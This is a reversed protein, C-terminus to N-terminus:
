EEMIVNSDHGAGNSNGGNNVTKLGADRWRNHASTAFEAKRDTRANTASLLAATRKKNNLHVLFSVLMDNQRCIDEYIHLYEKKRQSNPMYADQTARIAAQFMHYYDTWREKDATTGGASIIRNINAEFGQLKSNLKSGEAMWALDMAGGSRDAVNLAEVKARKTLASDVKEADEVQQYASIGATTRFSLKNKEAASRQYSNHFLDYYYSPTLGGAGVEMVTIQNMKTEDHNYTVSQAHLCYPMLGCVALVLSKKMVKKIM